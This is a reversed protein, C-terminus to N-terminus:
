RAEGAPEATSALLARGDATLSYMVMKGDRRASVLGERKLIKMHHSTLNQAREVIWSLDCVCLELGHRLALALALRTPEGLARYRSAIREAADPDLRSGRLATGEPRSLHLLQGHELDM